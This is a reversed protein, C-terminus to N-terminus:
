SARPNSVYLVLSTVGVVLVGQEGGVCFIKEESLNQANVHGAV